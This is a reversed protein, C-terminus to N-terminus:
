PLAGGRARALLVSSGLLVAAALELWPTIQSMSEQVSASAGLKRYIADLSTASTADFAQGGSERALLGVVGPDSPVRVAQALLGKGEVVVGHSTGLAVGYIRVGAQGAIRGAEFPMVGGRDQSGDSELVIAAPLHQGRVRVTGSAHLSRLVVRVAALVAQGIATGGQPALLELNSDVAAHDTTPEDLVEVKDSFSILGVKDDPALENVLQRMAAVAAYIREPRIDTAQMSGSVDALLVITAGRTHKKLRLDPHAFALGAVLISLALLLIPLDRFRRTPRSRATHALLPLNTFLLRTRSSRRRVFYVFLLLIPVLLLSILREPAAFTPLEIGVIFAIVGRV